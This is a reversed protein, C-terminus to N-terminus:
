RLRLLDDVDDHAATAVVTAAIVALHRSYRSRSAEPMVRDEGKRRAQCHKVCGGDLRWRREVTM